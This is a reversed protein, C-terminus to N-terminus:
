CGVRARDPARARGQGTRGSPIVSAEARPRATHFQLATMYTEDHTRPVMDTYLLAHAHTRSVRTISFQLVRDEGNRGRTHALTDESM